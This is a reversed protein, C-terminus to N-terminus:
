LIPDISSLDIPDETNLERPIQYTAVQEWARHPFITWWGTTQIDTRDRISSILLGFTPITWLIVILALTVNVAILGWNRKGRPKTRAAPATVTPVAPTAAAM